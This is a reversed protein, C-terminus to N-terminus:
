FTYQASNLPKLWKIARLLLLLLLLLLLTQKQKSVGKNVNWIMFITSPFGEM